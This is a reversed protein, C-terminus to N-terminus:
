RIKRIAEEAAWRVRPLKRLEELAPVSSAADAGIADLASAASRLVHVQEDPVRCAETLAPVAGPIPRKSDDNSEPDAHNSSSRLAKFGKPEPLRSLDVPQQAFSAAVCFLLGVAGALARKV